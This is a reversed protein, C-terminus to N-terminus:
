PQYGWYSYVDNKDENLNFYFWRNGNTSNNGIVLLTFYVRVKYQTDNYVDVGVIAIDGVYNKKMVNDNAVISHFDSGDRYIELDCISYDIKGLYGLREKWSIASPYNGYASCNIYHSPDSPAGSRNLAYFYKDLVVKYGHKQNESVVENFLESELNLNNIETLDNQSAIYHSQENIVNYLGSADEIEKTEKTLEETVPTTPIDIPTETVTTTVSKSSNINTNAESSNFEFATKVGDACSTLTLCLLGSLLIANIRKVILEREKLYIIKEAMEISM